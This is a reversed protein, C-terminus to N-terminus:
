EILTVSWYADDVFYRWTKYKDSQLKLRILPSRKPKYPQRILRMCAEDPTRGGKKVNCDTCCCVINSWTAQGGRSRPVIHDLSLETTSHRRGCYQCRNGDRAFINRRNFKVLKRPLRDYLLLRIIKPVRIDLSVTRVYESGADEDRPFRGRLSTLEMWNHIDYSSMTDNDDFAIVEAVEKFLLCFARKATTVHVAMYNRNLVLVSSELASASNM